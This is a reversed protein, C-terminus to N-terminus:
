QHHLHFHLMMAALRFRQGSHVGRQLFGVGGKLFGIRPQFRQRRRVRQGAQWVVAGEDGGQIGLGGAGAALFLGAGQQKHVNVVELADVIGVPM